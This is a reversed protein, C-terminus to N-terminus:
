SPSPRAICNCGRRTRAGPAFTADCSASPARPSRRRRSSRVGRESPPCAACASAAARACAGARGSDTRSTATESSRSRPLRDDVHGRLQVGALARASPTGDGDTPSRASEALLLPWRALSRTPRRRSEREWIPSTHVALDVKIALPAFGCGTSRRRAVAPEASATTVRARDPVIWAALQERTASTQRGVSGAGPRRTAVSSNTGRHWPTALPGAKRPLEELTILQEAAAPPAVAYVTVQEHRSSTVFWAPRAPRSAGCRRLDLHVIM